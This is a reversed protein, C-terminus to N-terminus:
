NTSMLKPPETDSWAAECYGTLLPLVDRQQKRATHVVTMINEAFMNGRESQTGFSRRRWLVFARLEREGHNNTPEVGRKDIFNFLAARHGLIDACSGSMREIDAAAARELLAEIREQLPAMRHLFAKRSLRKDRYDHWYSFMIGTADLLERGMAGAPGERESFNVFRRILHAWCVQRREMAWFNLAKARDSVLIGKLKGFLPRLSKKSGDVLIKFVTVATTAITWLQMPLGGMKWSTGDTHKAQADPVQAWAEDVGPQIAKGVRAEVNSIGGLSIVVGLLDTLLRQTGRRSVHFVGTLLAIISSLRPGFPSACFDAARKARTRYQCCPCEVEHWRDETTHPKVPLIETTQHWSANPDPTKPLPKWCDECKPPYHDVVDVESEPLRVRHHGKHGKQGGRKRKGKGRKKKPPKKGPPDSSPPKSSNSSNQDLREKLTVVLAALQKLEARLQQIERERAALEADRAALDADRAALDADRAALDADRIRLEERLSRIITATNQV